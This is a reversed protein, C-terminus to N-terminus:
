LIKRKLLWLAQHQTTHGCAKVRPQRMFRTAVQLQRVLTELNGQVAMQTLFHDFLGVITADLRGVAARSM